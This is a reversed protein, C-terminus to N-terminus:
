AAASLAYAPPAVGFHELVTPAIESIGAPLRDLGVALMPVESDERELSGHSGGGAHHRGALDAFEYGPAASLLLDGANPNALARWSRELAGPQDLVRSEGSTRWGNGTPAFRLEVGARRAVAEGRDRYLVVEVAPDGDLQEALEAPEPRCEPLRYVMAARNSATVMVDGGGGRRGTGSLGALTAQPSAVHRVASQGHDSCVILAYRGLFEDLGGASEVLAAIRADAQALAQATAGPGVAHSALDLDSLYYFLFDFGDRVVLWRGVAEAYDDISGAARNRVALSAGTTDSEFLNYFYFRDPGLVPRRLGPLTPRHETRGRYVPTNVAATELGADALAEFMTVSEPALHEGNLSFVTDRWWRLAGARRAAAFSSGYEVLRQEGRHYWVLHPIRHIDAHAGTNISALCVPTLSPFVSLGRRYEGHAALQALTPAIGSEVGQEFMAPTLGDIVALIVKQRAM